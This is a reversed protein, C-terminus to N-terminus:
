KVECGCGGGAILCLAINAVERARLCMHPRSEKRKHESTQLHLIGKTKLSLQVGKEEEGKHSQPGRDGRHVDAHGPGRGGGTPYPPLIPHPTLILPPVQTTTCDATKSTLRPQTAWSSCVFHTDERKQWTGTYLGSYLISLTSYDFDERLVGRIHPFRQELSSVM